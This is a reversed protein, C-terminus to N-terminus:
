GGEFARIRAAAQARVTHLRQMMLASIRKLTGYGFAPDRECLSRVTEADFAYLRSPTRARASFAWRHPPVLWSWGIVEGAQIAQVWQEAGEPVRAFLDVTGELLIYFQNAHGGETILESGTGLAQEAMCDSLQARYLESLHSFVPHERLFSLNGNSM